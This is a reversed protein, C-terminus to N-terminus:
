SVTKQDDPVLGPRYLYHLLLLAGLAFVLGTAFNAAYGFANTIFGATVASAIIGFISCCDMFTYESAGEVPASWDMMFAFLPVMVMSMVFHYFGILSVLVWQADTGSAAAVMYGAYPLVQLGVALLLARRRGLPNAILGGFAAGALGAVPGAIGMMWGIQDLSFGLDVLMTRSMQQGFGMGMRAIVVILLIRRIHRRKLFRKFDRFM